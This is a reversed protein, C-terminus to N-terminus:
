NRKGRKRSQAGPNKMLDAEEKASALQESSPFLQIWHKYLKDAENHKDAYGLAKIQLARLRLLLREARSAFEESVKVVDEDEMASYTFAADLLEYGALLNNPDLELIMRLDKDAAELKPHGGKPTVILCRAYARRYLLEPNYPYEKLGETALQIAKELIPRQDTREKIMEGFIRDPRLEGPDYSEIVKDIKDLLAKFKKIGKM